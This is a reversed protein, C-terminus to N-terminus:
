CLENFGGRNFDLGKKVKKCIIKDINHMFTLSIVLMLRNDRPFASFFRSPFRENELRSRGLEKVRQEMNFQKLNM